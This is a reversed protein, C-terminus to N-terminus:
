IGASPLGKIYFLLRDAVQAAMIFVFAAIVPIFLYRNRTIDSRISFLAWFGFGITLLQFLLRLVFLVMSGDLMVDLTQRTLDNTQGLWTMEVPLIGIQILPIAIVLIALIKQSAWSGKNIQFLLIFSSGMALASLYFGVPTFLSNWAPKADLLYIRSMVYVLLLGIIATVDILWKLKKEPSPHRFQIIALFLVLFSYILVLLIERSLWSTGINSLSLWAKAPSGLHFLSAAMGSLAILAAFLMIWKYRFPIDNKIRMLPFLLFLDYLLVTGVSFQTALTFITLSLTSEHM